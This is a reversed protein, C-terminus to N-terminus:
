CSLRLGTIVSFVKFVQKWELDSFLLITGGREIEYFNIFEITSCRSSQESTVKWRRGEGEKRRDVLHNNSVRIYLHFAVEIEM